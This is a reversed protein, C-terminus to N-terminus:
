INRENNNDKYKEILKNKISELDVNGDIIDALLDTDNLIIGDLKFVGVIQSVKFKTENSIM